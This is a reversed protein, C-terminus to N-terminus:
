KNLLKRLISQEHESFESNLRASIRSEDEKTHEHWFTFLDIMGNKSADAMVENSIFRKELENIIACLGAELYKNRDELITIKTLLKHDTKNVEKINNGFIMNRLKENNNLLKNNDAENIYLQYSDILFENNRNYEKLQNININANYMLGCIRSIYEKNSNNQNLLDLLIVDRFLRTTITDYNIYNYNYVNTIFEQFQKKNDNISNSLEEKNSKIINDLEYKNAKIIENSNDVADKM